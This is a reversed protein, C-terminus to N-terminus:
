GVRAVSKLRAALYIVFACGVPFVFENVAAAVVAATPLATGTLAANRQALLTMVAAAVIGVAAGLLLYPRAHATGKGVLHGLAAGLIAYEVGKLASVTYFFSTIPDVTAGVLHQVARQVGKALGWAVPAAIFGIAGMVASRSRGAVTGIAIGACVLLAWTVGQALDALFALQPWSAAAVVKVALVLLQVAIGLLIAAWAAFIARRIADASAEEHVAEALNDSIFDGDM